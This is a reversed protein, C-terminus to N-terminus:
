YDSGTKIQRLKACVVLELVDDLWISATIFATKKL